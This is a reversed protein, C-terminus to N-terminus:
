ETVSTMWGEGRVGDEGKWSLNTGADERLSCAHSRNPKIGFSFNSFRRSLCRGLVTPELDATEGDSRLGEPEAIEALPNPLPPLPLAAAATGPVILSQTRTTHPTLGSVPPPRSLLPLKLKKTRQKQPLPKQRIKNESIKKQLTSVLTMFTSYTTSCVPIM